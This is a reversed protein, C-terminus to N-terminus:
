MTSKSAKSDSNNEQESLSIVSKYILQICICIWLCFCHSQSVIICLDNYLNKKNNNYQEKHITYMTCTAFTKTYTTTNNQDASQM